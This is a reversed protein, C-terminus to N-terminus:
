RCIAAKGNHGCIGAQGDFLQEACQNSLDYKSGIELTMSLPLDGPEVSYDGDKGIVIFKVQGPNKPSGEKLLVKFIGDIGAKNMWKFVNGKANKKWGAKTAKDFNGAPIDVDIIARGNTDHVAIRVGNVVPDLTPTVPTPLQVSGSIKAKHEGGAKDLKLLLIQPKTVNPCEIDGMGYASFHSIELCYKDFTKDCCCRLTECTGGPCDGDVTCDLGENTGGTCTNYTDAKAGWGDQGAVITTTPIGTAPDIERCQHDTIYNCKGCIERSSSAPDEPVQKTLLRYKNEQTETVTSDWNICLTLYPNFEADEPELLVAAVVSGGGQKLFLERAPPPSGHDPDLGTVSITTDKSVSGPPVTLEVTGDPTVLQETTPAGCAPGTTTFSGATSLLPECCATGSTCHTADDQNLDPCADCADGGNTDGCYVTADGPECADGDSDTQDPNCVSPCNDCDDGVGDSDGDPQTPNFVLECNDCIDPYGDSDTDPHVVDAPCNASSGTCVEEEDCVGTSPRCVTGATVLNDVCATSVGDCVDIVDCVGAATRCVTSAAAVADAPCFDNFGDCSEAVDCLGAAARCVASSKADTPCAGAGDCNEALDCEGAAPRCTVAASAYNTQCTGSGDCTDPADCTTSSASGCAVGVSEYNSQCSGLGDCTDPNDCDTDSASGCSTGSPELVDACTVGVGDCTDAADCAGTSARCVTGASLVGDAPCDNSVGDCSEEADCLDTAARCVASSKADASCSGAGDCYDAVDCAGASARCEQTTPETTCTASCCDGDVNNGDDCQESGNVVGDGCIFNHVRAIFMLSGGGATGYGSTRYEGAVNISAYDVSMERPYVEHFSMLEASCNSGSAFSTDEDGTSGYFRCIKFSGGSDILTVIRNGPSAKVDTAHGSGSMESTWTVTGSGDGLNYLRGITESTFGSFIALAGSVFINGSESVAIGTGASRIASGPSFISYGTGNFSTDLSGDPNFRAAFLGEGGGYAKHDMLLYSPQPARPLVYGTVLIKGNADRTAATAHVGTGFTQVIFDSDASLSGKGVAWGAVRSITDGSRTYKSLAIAAPAGSINSTDLNTVVVFETEPTSGNPGVAAVHISELNYDVGAQGSGCYTSYGSVTCDANTLCLDGQKQGSPDTCYQITPFICSNASSDGGGIQDLITGSGNVLAVNNTVVGTSASPGCWTEVAKPSPDEGKFIGSFHRGGGVSVFKNSAFVSFTPEAIAADMWITRTYSQRYVDFDDFSIGDIGSAPSSGQFGTKFSGNYDVALIGWIETEIGAPDGGNFGGLAMAGGSRPLFLTGDFYTDVRPIVSTVVADDEGTSVEANVATSVGGPQVIIGSFGFSTDLTASTQAHARGSPLLAALLIVIGIAWCRLTLGFGDSTNPSRPITQM